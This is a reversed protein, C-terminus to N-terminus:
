GVRSHTRRPVRDEERLNRVEGALGRLWERLEHTEDLATRATKEIRAEQRQVRAMAVAELWVAVIQQLRVERVTGALEGDELRVRASGRVRGPRLYTVRLLRADPRAAGERFAYQGGPELEARRVPVV